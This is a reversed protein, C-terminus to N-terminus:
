KGLWQLGWGVLILGGTVPLLVDDAVGIGTVDDALLVASSGAGVVVLTGGVTIFTSYHAPSVFPVPENTKL